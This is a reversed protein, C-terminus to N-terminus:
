YSLCWGQIFKHWECLNHELVIHCDTESHWPTHKHRRKQHWKLNPWTIWFLVALSWQLINEDAAKRDDLWFWWLVSLFAQNHWRFCGALLGWHATVWLPCMWRVCPISMILRGCNWQLLFTSGSWIGSCHWVSAGVRLRCYCHGPLFREVIARALITEKVVISPEICQIRQRTHIGTCPSNVLATRDAGWPVSVVIISASLLNIAQCVSSNGRWIDSGPRLETRCVSVINLSEQFSTILWDVLQLFFVAVLSVLWLSKHQNNMKYYLFVSFTQINREETHEALKWRIHVFNPVHCGIVMRITVPAPTYALTVQALPSASQADDTRRQLDTAWWPWSYRPSCNSWYAIVVKILSLLYSSM